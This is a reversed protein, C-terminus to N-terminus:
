PSQKLPPLRPNFPLFKFRADICLTADTEGSRIFAPFGSHRGVCYREVLLGPPWM